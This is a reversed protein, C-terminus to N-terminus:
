RRVTGPKWPWYLPRYWIGREELISWGLGQGAGIFPAAVYLRDEEADLMSFPRSSADVSRFSEGDYSLLSVSLVPNSLKGVSLFGCGRGNKRPLVCLGVTQLGYVNTYVGSPQRLYFDYWYGYSGVAGYREIVLDQKGDGSFDCAVVQVRNTKEASLEARIERPLDSIPLWGGDIRAKRYAAVCAKDAMQEYGRLQWGSAYPETEYGNSAAFSMSLAVLGSWDELEEKHESRAYALAENVRDMGDRDLRGKRKALELLRTAEDFFGHQLAVIGRTVVPHMGQMTQTVDVIVPRLGVKQMRRRKPTVGLRWAIRAKPDAGVGRTLIDAGRWYTHLFGGKSSGTYLFTGADGGLEVKGELVRVAHAWELMSPISVLANPPLQRAFRGNLRNCYEMAEAWEIGTAPDGPGFGPRVPREMVAAFEGESVMEDAIWYRPFAVIDMKEENVGSWMFDLPLRSAGDVEVFRLSRGGGELVVPAGLAPRVASAMLVAMWAFHTLIGNVSKMVALIIGFGIEGSSM